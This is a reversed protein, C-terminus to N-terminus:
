RPLVTVKASQNTMSKTMGRSLNFSGQVIAICALAISIDLGSCARLIIGTLAFIYIAFESTKFGDYQYIARNRKFLARSLIYTAAIGTFSFAWTIANMSPIFSALFFASLIALSTRFESTKHNSKYDKIPQRIDSM